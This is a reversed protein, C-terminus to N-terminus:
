KLYDDITIGISREHYHFDTHCNRCLTICKEIEKLLRQTSSGVLDAITKDKQSPDLHHFDL